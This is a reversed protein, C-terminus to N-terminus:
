PYWVSSGYCAPFVKLNRKNRLVVGLRVASTINAELVASVISILNVISVPVWKIVWGGERGNLLM